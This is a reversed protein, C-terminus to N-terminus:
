KKTKGTNEGKDDWIDVMGSDSAGDKKPRGQVSDKETQVEKGTKKSKKQRSSPVEQVFPNRQLLSDCRLVKERHKEIKRKVSLDSNGFISLKCNIMGSASIFSFEDQVDPDNYVLAQECVSISIQFTITNLIHNAWGQSPCEVIPRVENHVSDRDRLFPVETTPAPASPGLHPAVAATLGDPTPSESYKRTAHNKKSDYRKPWLGFAWIPQQWCVTPSPLYPGFRFPNNGM